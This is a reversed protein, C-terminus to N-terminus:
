AIIRVRSKVCRLDASALAQTMRPRTAVNSASEPIRQTRLRLPANLRKSPGVLTASRLSPLEGTNVGSGRHSKLSTRRPATVALALEPQYQRLKALCGAKKLGSM